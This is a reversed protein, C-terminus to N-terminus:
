KHYAPCLIQYDCFKCGYSVKPLFDGKEIRSIIEIVKLKTRELDDETRKFTKKTNSSIYYFSLRGVELGLKEIAAIAYLDLQMSSQKESKGTKYDIIEVSGDEIEDIRDIFGKFPKDELDITFKKEIFLPPKLSDKNNKFFETLEKEGRVKYLREEKKNKYGASLWLHDYIELLKKIDIKYDKQVYTYFEKLVDHIVTGLTFYPKPRRPINDIFSFKYKLPCQMYIDIKTFSYINGGRPQPLVYDVASKGKTKETSELKGAMARIEKKIDKEIKSIIEQDGSKKIKVDGILKAIRGATEMKIMDRSSIPIEVTSEIHKRSSDGESEIFDIDSKKEDPLIIEELFMSPRSYRKQIGNLFLKKQARTLAVYLLRREEEIHFNGQPLQEKMLEEPFHVAEKKLSTPFRNQVLSIVFVYPFELGKAQHVTMLRVGYDSTIDDEGEMKGGADMYADLYEMLSRLNARRANQAAYQSILNYFKGINRLAPEGHMSQKIYARKLISTKTSILQYIFELLNCKDSIRKLNRLSDLFEKIKRKTEASVDVDKAKLLGRYLNLNNYKSFTNIRILDTYDIDREVSSALKFYSANDEPDTLAKLYAIIEKVEDSEFIGIGGSISHPINEIKLLKLIEEKHAHARYLVAIKSYDKENKYIEKIKGVVHRGEGYYNPAIKVEVKEGEGNETWLSKQPDYRDVDNQKILNGAVRLIKKTSRYNQTLKIKKHHVFYEKFKIFSAYSAGRFRYIAQDDDGVVCINKHEKALMAILEIQAVNTDQFEDVMIYKYRKQYQELIVKRKKFLEIAKIILDGFDLQGTEGCRKQYLRYASLIEESRRKEDKDTLKGVLGAYDGDSVLEDKCRSIFRLVANTFGALDTIDAYYDLKLAPILNKFFIHQGINDLIRFNSKLGMEIAHDNLVSHCFSHFTAVKIDEPNEDILEGVRARMEEAAKKSFTLALIDEPGIDKNKELIYAIRHTIVRTKGSGAGAVILLPGDVTTVAERQEKNLMALLPDKNM